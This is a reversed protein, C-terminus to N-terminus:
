GNFTQDGGVIPTPLPGFDGVNDAAPTVDPVNYGTPAFSAPNFSGGGTAQPTMFMKFLSTMDVPRPTPSNLYGSLLQMVANQAQQQQNQIYPALAQAYVDKMVAPSSGLGREGGYADTMRAVDSTLGAALPKENQAVLAQFKQPNNLLDLVKNTKNQAQRNALFNQAFGAGATGVKLLDQGVTGTLFNGINSFVESM